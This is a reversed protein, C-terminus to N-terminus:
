TKETGWSILRGKLASQGATEMLSDALPGDGVILFRTSPLESVVKPVAQILLNHGKVESLRGVIAVLKANSQLNLSRRFDSVAIPDPETFKEFPVANNILILREESVKRMTRVFDRVGRSVVIAPYGLPSLVWDAFKPILACLMGGYAGSACCSDKDALRGNKWFDLLWLRTLPPDLSVDSSLVFLVGFPLLTSSAKTLVAFMSDGSGLPELHSTRGACAASFSKLELRTSLCMIPLNDFQGMYVLAM